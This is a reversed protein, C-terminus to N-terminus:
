KNEMMYRLMLLEAQNTAEHRTELLSSEYDRQRLMGNDILWQVLEMAYDQANKKEPNM